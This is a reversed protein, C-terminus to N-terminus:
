IFEKVKVSVVSAKTKNKQPYKDIKYVLFLFSAFSAVGLGLNMGEFPLATGNQWSHGYFFRKTFHVLKQKNGFMLRM